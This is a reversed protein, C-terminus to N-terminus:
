IAADAHSSLTGLQGALGSVAGDSLRYWIWRGRKDGEILGAESLIKLHHSVTPQSKGIPGVFDCACVEGAESRGIISLIQLRTADAVAALRSALATADDGRLWDNVGGCCATSDSDESM